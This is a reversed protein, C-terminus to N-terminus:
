AEDMLGLCCFKDMEVASTDKPCGSATSSNNAPDGALKQNFNVFV